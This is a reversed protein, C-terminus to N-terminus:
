QGRTGCAAVQLDFEVSRAGAQLARDIAALTNEPAVSSYGRHAIIEPSGVTHNSM